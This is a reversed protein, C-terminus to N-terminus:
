RAVGKPLPDTGGAPPRRFATGSVGPVLRQFAMNGDPAFERLKCDSCRSMAPLIFQILHYAGVIDHIILIYKLYRKCYERQSRPLRVDKHSKGLGMPSTRQARQTRQSLNKCFIKIALTHKSNYPRNSPKAAGKSMCTCLRTAGRESKQESKRSPVIQPPADM